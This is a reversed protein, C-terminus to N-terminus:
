GHQGQAKTASRAFYFDRVLETVQRAVTEEPQSVDVLVFNEVLTALPLYEQRRQEIAEVTGERKRAFLVEAPADLCIVLDPRPYLQKLMWGHLRSSLLQQGTRPEVDHFYYDFLFHRDVLVIQGRRLFSWIIAQRYWEEALLNLMRAGSKLEARVRKLGGAPVAKARTPDPPGGMTIAQGRARKFAAWLRTTPLLYNSAEINIGLYVYHIPLGLSALLHRSITSKGAGDPGILAVTFM